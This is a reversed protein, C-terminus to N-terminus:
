FWKAKDVANVPPKGRVFRRVNEALTELHREPVRVSCAAAHPTLIVNEMAWLPHDKPLPEIEYVDLAAGAIEGARLAAVLDDLKVIAGRGINVLIASRKMKGIRARDFLGETDPTHPAAIVTFDAESLLDDLREVPRLWEVEPPADRRVADVAVVRMGFARGRRAIESGINGLGVIGLTQDAMHRHARDMPTPLGPGGSFDPRFTGDDGAQRWEARLQQRLYVHLNRAFMLILGLVHDAIVDSFLGRTNTLTCPHAVLEPFVYHELSATFSQVWRLRPAAALMPPTIKGLFGDADAIERIAEAADAANVVTAEGAARRLTALRGADVPPHIVLKM